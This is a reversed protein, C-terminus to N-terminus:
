NEITGIIGATIPYHPTRKYERRSLSIHVNVIQRVPSHSESTQKLAHFHHYQLFLVKGSPNELGKVLLTNIDISYHIIFLTINQPCPFNESM